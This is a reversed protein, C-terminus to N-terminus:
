HELSVLAFVIVDHGGKARVNVVGAGLKRSEAAFELIGSGTQDSGDLVDLGADM